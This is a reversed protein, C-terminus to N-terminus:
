NSVVRTRHCQDPYNCRVEDGSEFGIAHHPPRCRDDFVEDALGVILCPRVDLFPSPLGANNMGSSTLANTRMGQPRGRKEGKPSDGLRPEM